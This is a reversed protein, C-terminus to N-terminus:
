QPAAIGDKSVDIVGTNGGVSYQIHFGEEGFSASTLGRFVFDNKRILSLLNADLLVPEQKSYTDPWPDFTIKNGNVKITSCTADPDCETEFSDDIPRTKNEPTSDDGGGGMKTANQSATTSPGKRKGGDGEEGGDGDGSKFLSSLFKLLEELCDAVSSGEIDAAETVGASIAATTGGSVVGIVTPGCATILKGIGELVEISKNMDKVGLMANVAQQNRQISSSLTRCEETKEVVCNKANFQAQLGSLESQLAALASNASKVADKRSQDAKLLDQVSEATSLGVQAKVMGDLAAQMKQCTESSDEECAAKQAATGRSKAEEFEERTQAAKEKVAKVVQEENELTTGEEQLSEKKSVALESGTAVVDPFSSVLERTTQLSKKLDDLEDKLAFHNKYNENAQEQLLQFQQVQVNVRSSKEDNFIMWAYGCLLGVIVLILSVIVKM